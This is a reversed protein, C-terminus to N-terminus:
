DALARPFLVHNELHIHQMVERELEALGVYLARWTNCAEPPPVFDHALRRLEALNRGHHVHEEEMVQIPGAAMAGRGSRLMPFLVQEEKQMHQELENGIQQLHACVGRPCAPKYAHVREVKAALQLLQPLDRRHGAHYRDLVHQIVDDLPQADWRSGPAAPRLEARLEALIRERDLGRRCCAEAVSIAGNCCFDLGHRLFVRSAGAYTTALAALTSDASISPVPPLQTTDTM